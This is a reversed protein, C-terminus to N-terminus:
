QVTVILSTDNSFLIPTASGGIALLLNIIYLLFLL